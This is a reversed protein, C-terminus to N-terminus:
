RFRRNVLAILGLIGITVYIILGGAFLPSAQTTPPQTETAQATTTNTKQEAASTQVPTSTAVTTLEPKVVIAFCGFSSSDAFYKYYGDEESDYVTSLMNWTGTEEDYRYLSLSDASSTREDVWDAPVSFMITAKEISDEPAKYLVADVYEYVDGDPANAGSPKAGAETTVLIDSINEKASVEIEYIPTKDFKLVAAEGASIEAAAASGLDSAGGGSGGSSTTKSGNSPNTQATVAALGFLSMGNPSDGEFTMMDGSTGVYTTDLVEKTGDEAIRIIKIADTGGNANVWSTPVSMTITAEKIEQGNTLNTKIINMTYAVTDVNFGSSRAALQFATSNGSDGTELTIQLSSSAPLNNLEVDVSGSVNGLEDLVAEVPDTELEIGTVNSVLDNGSTVPTEDSKITITYSGSDIVIDNGSVQVESKNVAYQKSGNGNDTITGNNKISVDSTTKQVGKITIYDTRTASDTGKDNTATLTVTYTGVTDYTYSPSQETSAVVGDGDFDWAWSTPYNSSADTFQVTLPYEGSFPSSVFHAVPASTEAVISFDDIYADNGEKYYDFTVRIEHVGTYNETPITYETWTNSCTDDQVLVGDVYSKFYQTTSGGHYGWFSIESVNTLDVHQTVSQTASYGENWGGGASFLVSYTGNHTQGASISTHSGLEWGTNDGTEFDPNVLREASSNGSVVISDEETHTASGGSNSVTLSVTYLGPAYWHTPNQETSTTGDGFDWEWSIPSNTSTDTFNVEFPSVGSTVDATFSPEPLIGAVQTITVSKTESTGLGNTATLSVTYTGAESYTHEPNQETSTTGDGFDWHWSYPMGTSTDTFQVPELATGTMDSVTFNAVPPETIMGAVQYESGASTMVLGTGHGSASYWGYANFVAFSTLNNFEYEVKIYGDSITQTCGLDLDIFMLEFTDATDSMNQGQFIKYDGSRFPRWIQPGYIFDDRTFTQNVAGEVYTLSGITDNNRAGPIPPEFGYGSSRIHVSFDDPITGNVALLLVGDHMNPQGGTHTIWFEGSRNTTETLQGYRDSLDSTIHLANTGGPTGPTCLFFYTNNVFTYTAASSVGDKVNYKVGEDNAVYLNLCENSHLPQANTYSCEIYDTKATTSSGATNAATLTVTYNGIVAYTHIPNQETSNTGDGFNWLWSTPRFTSEDTFQVVLPYRGYTKDASFEAEPTIVDKVVIPESIVTVTSGGDNTVTLSVNYTGASTYTHIPNQETSNTGDDFDWLWNTLNYGTSNDTFAVSLPVAGYSTNTSFSVVPPDQPTVNIYGTKITSNIGAVNTATLTATYLGPITYTHAPNQETANAGDGFDWLWSTPLGASLDTFTTSFPAQGTTASANFDAVPRGRVTVYAPKSAIFIEGSGEETVTLNVTFIGASGYLHSTNQEDSTTGDGFDWHWNSVTRGSTGAFQITTKGAEVERADTTFDVVSEFAYITGDKSSIYLTGDSGIAPSCGSLLPITYNWKVTGDPNIAFVDGSTSSSSYSGLYITGDSGIVPTCVTYKNIDTCTWKEAGDPNVAIIKGARYYAAYITGDSAIVPCGYRFYNSDPQCAWIDSGDTPNLARIDRGSYTAIYITGDSGIVPSNYMMSTSAVWKKNGDADLAYVLYGYNLYITGDTAIVPTSYFIYNNPTDAHPDFIWKESGDVPNLAYLYKLSTASSTFYITGDSGIAPSNVDGEMTTYNWKETGDPNLAYFKDDKSGFYITGDSSLAPTSIIQGGTTFNWKESGDPNIAHMKGTTTGIYITGDSAIASGAHSSVSEGIPLTWKLTPTQPGDYESQGTNRENVGFKPMPSDALLSGGAAGVTIYGTATDSGGTNTVTLNVTYTGAATYTHTPNQETSNTGDDFDWAWSTPNNTSLDTFSFTAPAEGRTSDAEFAAVPAEVVPIGVVSYGSSGDETVQNTWGMGQGKSTANNWGYVNFAAYSTLNSFEYEIKVAGYDNLTTIDRSVGGNAGSGLVGAGTDIFALYFQNGTDSTDEGYFLPYLADSGQPKWIQPGYIFDSKTFTEELTTENYVPVGLAPATNQATNPTWTYGSAKIRVSFDDSITGNIALLLVMDDQYGRGGTDTIYFTGNQKASVTVQGSTDTPDTSIHVANLGGSNQMIYYTGNGTFDYVIHNSPRVYVGTYAPIVGESGLSNEVSSLSSLLVTSSTETGNMDALAPVPVMALLLLIVGILVPLRLNTKTM